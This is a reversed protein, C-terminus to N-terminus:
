FWVRFGAVLTFDDPDEGAARALDASNGYQKVWTVGVYPAFERRIEYRLRLGVELDSLGAGIQREPDDQGYANLELAPQLVLRQTLLLDYETSLRFATDGHDSVYAMAELEIFGPALGAMGFALWSQTGGEGFDHRLGLRTNWWATAIRDWLVEVRADHTEGDAHEGETEIWLKHYDGGYWAAADWEYISTDADRWELRDILVKGFRRRDDMGMMDAMEHYPMSHVSSQPPDPPVHERESAGPEEGSAPLALAFWVAAWARRM